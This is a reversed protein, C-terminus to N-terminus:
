PISIGQYSLTVVTQFTHNTYSTQLIGDYKEAATQASKLGWGHLGNDEKSTKLSGDRKVPLCQFSNEVKIVLMQNIRRITLRVFREEQEPIQQAAELANDLLNGLIACLDARKLNTHSPFEVQIQYQVAHEKAVAAKSNILYDITEDGTWRTDTIEQIPAQLEEIYQLAEEIKKSSLLQHLVGIHNHFDHFLKANIGYAHNLTTYDRELLETQESKLRALEKEVEYQRNIYFVLVSMMLIVSLIRWMELTDDAIILITQQSLTIVAVFGTVALVSVLRFAEKSTLNPRNWSYLFVALLLTYLLWVSIQGNRTSFDLFGASHFLVGLWASILFQWFSVAIEFFIGIFLSIRVETGRFCGACVAIWAAEAAIRFFESVGAISQVVSIVTAGAAAAIIRNKAPKKALLLRFIFFLGLMTRINGAAINSFLIFFNRM